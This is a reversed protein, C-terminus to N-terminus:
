FPVDAPNSAGHSPHAAGFALDNAGSTNGDGLTGRATYRQRREARERLDQETMERLQIHVRGDKGPLPLVDLQMNISKDRNEFGRGLDKWYTNGDSGPMPCLVKFMKKDQFV